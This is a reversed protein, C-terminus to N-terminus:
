LLFFLERILQHFPAHHELAHMNLLVLFILNASNCLLNSFAVWIIKLPEGSRIRENRLERGLMEKAGSGM